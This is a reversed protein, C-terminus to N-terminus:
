ICLLNKAQIILFCNLRRLTAGIRAREWGDEGFDFRSSDIRTATSARVEGFEGLELEGVQGAFTQTLAGLSYQCIYTFIAPGSIGWLTKSESGFSELFGGGGGRKELLPKEGGGDM